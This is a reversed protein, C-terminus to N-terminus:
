KDENDIKKKKKMKMKKTKIGEEQVEHEEHNYTM